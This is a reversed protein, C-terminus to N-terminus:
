LCFLPDLKLSRLNPSFPNTVARLHSAVRPKNHKCTDLVPKLKFLMRSMITRLLVRDRQLAPLRASPVSGDGLDFHLFLGNGGAPVALYAHNRRTKTTRHRLHTAASVSSPSWRRSAELTELTELADSESVSVVCTELRVCLYLHASVCRSQVSFPHISFGFSSWRPHSLAPAKLFWM